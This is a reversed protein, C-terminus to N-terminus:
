CTVDEWHLLPVDYNDSNVLDAMVSFLNFCVSGQVSTKSILHFRNRAIWCM